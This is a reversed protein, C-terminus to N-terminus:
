PHLMIKQSRRSPVSLPLVSMAVIAYGIMRPGEFVACDMVNAGDVFIVDLVKNENLDRHWIVM